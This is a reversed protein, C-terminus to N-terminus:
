FFLDQSLNKKLYKTSTLSKVIVIPIVIGTALQINELIICYNCFYNSVNIQWFVEGCLACM